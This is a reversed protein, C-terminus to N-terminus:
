LFHKKKGRLIFYILIVLSALAYYFLLHSPLIWNGLQGTVLLSVLLITNGIAIDLSFVRGLFAPEVESQLYVDYGINVFTAFIGCLVFIVALAMLNFHIGMFLYTLTYFLSGYVMIHLSSRNKQVKGVIFAGVISGGGMVATMFGFQEPSVELELKLLSTYLTRWGGGTISMAAFFLIVYKIKEHGVIYSFGEKFDKLLHSPEKHKSVDEYVIFMESFASILFSIGNIIFVSSVGLSGILVGGFLPGALMSVRFSIANLANATGLDKKEVIQPYLSRIAPSFFVSIVSQLAVIIYISAIDKSFILMFSLVGQLIDSLVIILKKNMRDAITGALPGIVISPLFRFFMLAALDSVKGNFNLIFWSLGLININSGINSVWQGWFILAMNKNKLLQIYDKM